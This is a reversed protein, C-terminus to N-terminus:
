FNQGKLAALSIETAIFGFIVGSLETKEDLLPNFSLYTAEWSRGFWLM